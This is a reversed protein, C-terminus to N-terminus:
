AFVRYDEMLWKISRDVGSKDPILEGRQSFLMTMVLLVAHRLPAPVVDYGAIYRITVPAPHSYVAPFSALYNLSVGGLGDLGGGMVVYNGSSYTQEAGDSDLYKISVVSRLPHRPLIMGNAFAAVKYDLTQVGLAQNTYNQVKETAVEILGSIYADKDTDEYQLHVKADALSVIPAAPTVITLM